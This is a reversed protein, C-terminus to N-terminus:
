KPKVMGKSNDDKKRKRDVSFYKFTSFVRRSRIYFRERQPWAATWCFTIMSQSEM